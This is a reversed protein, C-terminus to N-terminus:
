TVNPAEFDGELLHLLFEQSLCTFLLLWYILSLQLCQSQFSIKTLTGLVSLQNSALLCLKGLEQPFNMAPPVQISAKVLGPAGPRFQHQTSPFRTAGVLASVLM